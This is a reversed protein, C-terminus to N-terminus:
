VSVYQWKTLKIHLQKQLCCVYANIQFQALVINVRMQDRKQSIDTQEAALHELKHVM